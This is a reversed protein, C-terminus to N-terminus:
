RQQRGPPDEMGPNPGRLALGGQLSSPGGLGQVRVEEKTMNEGINRMVEKLEAADLYGNGDKDFIRSVLHQM